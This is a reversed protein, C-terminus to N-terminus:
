DMGNNCQTRPPAPVEEDHPRSKRKGTKKYQAQGPAEDDLDLSDFDIDDAHEATIPPSLGFASEDFNVDRSIVVQGAEIDYVRYAKSAEEYGLFIGTRAKPDWKLRKEKPTLIYVQCGFVRMHKVSPKSNHVIEFPTKHMVKPSPLRDKIYIATM